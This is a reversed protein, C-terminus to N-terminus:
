VDPRKSATTDTLNHLRCKRMKMDQCVNLLLCYLTYTYLQRVAGVSSYCHVFFIFRADSAAICNDFFSMRCECKVEERCEM